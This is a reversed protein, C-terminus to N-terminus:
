VFKLIKRLLSYVAILYGVFAVATVIWVIDTLLMPFGFRTGIFWVVALTIVIIGTWFVSALDDKFKDKVEEFSSKQIVQGLFIGMLGFLATSATILTTMLESGNM